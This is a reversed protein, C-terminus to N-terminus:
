SSKLSQGWSGPSIGLIYTKQLLCIPFIWCDLHTFWWIGWKCPLKPTHRIGSKPVSGHSISTNRSIEVFHPTAEVGTSELIVPPSNLVGSGKDLANLSELCGAEAGFVTIWGYCRWTSLHIFNHAQFLNAATQHLSPIGTCKLGEAILSSGSTQRSLCQYVAPDPLVRTKAFRSVHIEDWTQGLSTPTKWGCKQIRSNPCGNRL